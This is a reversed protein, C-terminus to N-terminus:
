QSNLKALVYEIVAHVKPDSARDLEKKFLLQAVDHGEVSVVVMALLDAKYRGSDIGDGKDLDLKELGRIAADAAPKGLQKLAGVCPHLADPSFEKEQSRTYLFSVNDVLLDVSESARLMPLDRIAQAKTDLDADTTATKKIIDMRRQIMQSRLSNFSAMTSELNDPTAQAGSTLMIVGPAVYDGPGLPTHNSQALLNDAAHQRAADMDTKVDGVRALPGQGSPEPPSSDATPSAGAYPNLADPLPGITAVKPGGVPDPSANATADDRVPVAPSPSAPAAKAEPHLEAPSKYALVAHRPIDFNMGAGSQYVFQIAVGTKTLELVRLLAFRNDTTQLLYVHGEEVGSFLGAVQKSTQPLAMPADLKQGSADSLLVDESVECIAGSFAWLGQDEPVYALDADKSSKLKDMVAARTLVKGGDSEPYAVLARSSLKLLTGHKDGSKDQAAADAPAQGAIAPIVIVGNPLACGSLDEVEKVAGKAPLSVSAATVAALIGLWARVTKAVM